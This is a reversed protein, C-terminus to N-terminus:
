SPGLPSFGAAGVPFFCFGSRRVTVPTGGGRRTFDWYNSTMRVYHSVIQNPSPRQRLTPGHTDSRFSEAGPRQRRSRRERTNTPGQTQSRPAEDVETPRLRHHTVEVSGSGSAGAAKGGPLSRRHRWVPQHQKPYRPVCHGGIGGGLCGAWTAGTWSRLPGCGTWAALLALTLPREAILLREIGVLLGLFVVVWEVDPSPDLVDVRLAAKSGDVGIVKTTAEPPVPEIRLASGTDITALGRRQFRPLQ